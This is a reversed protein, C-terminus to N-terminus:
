PVKWSMKRRHQMIFTIGINFFIIIAIPLTILIVLFPYLIQQRITKAHFKM